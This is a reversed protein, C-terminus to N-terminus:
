NMKLDFYLPSKKGYKVDKFEKGIKKILKIGGVALPIETGQLLEMMMPNEKCLKQIINETHKSDIEIDSAQEFLKEDNVKKIDDDGVIQKKVAQRLIDAEIRDEMFSRDVRFIKDRIEIPMENIDVAILLSGVLNYLKLSRLYSTDHRAHVQGNLIYVVSNNGLWNEAQSTADRKTELIWKRYKIKSNNLEQITDTDTKPWGDRVLKNKGHQYRLISNLLGVLYAADGKGKIRNGWERLEILKIPIPLEYFVQSRIARQGERWLDANL